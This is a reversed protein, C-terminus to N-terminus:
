DMTMLQFSSFGFPTETLGHVNPKRLAVYTTIPLPATAWDAMLLKEAQWYLAYRAAADGTMQAQSMIRDFDANKYRSRNYPSDSMWVAGLFTMADPYDATWGWPFFAEEGANMARIHTAREVVNVAVDMGLVRKFQGALYTIADKFPATSTIQVPPLGKGDPYGAEAMLQKARAPDYGLSPLDGHYGAIGPTVQGNLPIAAGNYLGKIMAARDISLSIAQRVRIDRFPAYLAQNMGLYNIQAKPVKILEKAYRDDALVRRFSSEPVEVFDLEGADYMSLATDGSPVILFRIGDIAPAGGWYSPNRAEVVDVGRTWKVFKYPGTGASAKTMWDPGLEDVIGSDMFQFPYIPFLVDPRAFTIEVTLPDVVRIGSIEQAKGDMFEKAGAITALPPANLGGKSGPRLLAEFTYKVDKAGFPRGSHFTVGDRLKFTLVKNDSSFAWSTALAPESSGDDRTRTFGEYMPKMVDGAVLESYTVPDIMAPDAIINVRLVKEAQAASPAVLAAWAGLLVTAVIRM